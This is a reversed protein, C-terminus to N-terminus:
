AFITHSTLLLTIYARPSEERDMPIVSSFGLCTSAMVVKTNPLSAKTENGVPYPLDTIKAM